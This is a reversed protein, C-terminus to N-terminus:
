STKSFIQLKKFIPFLITETKGNAGNTETGM